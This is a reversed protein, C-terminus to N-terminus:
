YAFSVHCTSLCVRTPRISVQNLLTAKINSGEPARGLAFIWERAKAIAAHLMGTDERKKTVRHKLDTWTGMKDFDKKEILCEPCACKGLFKLCAVLCKEPYDAAYLFI